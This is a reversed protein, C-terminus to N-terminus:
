DTTTIQPCTIFMCHCTLKVEMGIVILEFKPIKSQVLSTLETTFKTLLVQSATHIQLDTHHDVQAQDVEM